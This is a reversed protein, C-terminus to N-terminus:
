NKASEEADAGMGNFAMLEGGIRAVLAPSEELLHIDDDSILPTGDENVLSMKTLRVMTAFQAAKDGEDGADGEVLQFYDPASLRRALVTKVVLAGSEDRPSWEPVEIDLYKPGRNSRIEEINLAM